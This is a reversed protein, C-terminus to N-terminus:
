LPEAGPQRPEGAGAPRRGRPWRPAPCQRGAAGEPRAATNWAAAYRSVYENYVQSGCIPRSRAPIACCRSLRAANPPAATAPRWCMPPSASVTSNSARQVGSLREAFGADTNRAYAVGSRRAARAKGFCLCGRGCCEAPRCIRRERLRKRGRRGRRQRSLRADLGAGSGARGSCARAARARPTRGGARKEGMRELLFGAALVLVALGGIPLLLRVSGPGARRLVFVSLVVLLAAVAGGAPLLVPESLLTNVVSGNM